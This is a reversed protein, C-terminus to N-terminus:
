GAALQALEDQQWIHGDLKDVYAIIGGPVYGQDVLADSIIGFIWWRPGERWYRVPNFSYGPFAAAARPPLDRAAIAQAAQQSVRPLRYAAPVVQGAAGSQALRALLARALPDPLNLGLFGPAAASQILRARLAPDALAPVQAALEGLQPPTACGRTLYLDSADPSPNM